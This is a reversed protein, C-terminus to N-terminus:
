CVEATLEHKKHTDCDTTAEYAEAFIRKLGLLLGVSYMLWEALVRNLTLSLSFWSFWSFGGGGITSCRAGHRM